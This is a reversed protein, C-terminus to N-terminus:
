SVTVTHTIFETNTKRFKLTYVGASIAKFKYPSTKVVPIDNCSCGEFKANVTIVKENNSGNVENFLLFSGCNNAVSFTVNITIEENINAVIPGNVATAGVGATYLCNPNGGDDGGVDCSTILVLSLLLFFNKFITKM